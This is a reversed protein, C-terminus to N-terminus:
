TACALSPLHNFSSGNVPCTRCHSSPATDGEPTSERCESEGRVKSGMYLAQIERHRVATLKGYFHTTLYNALFHSTALSPHQDLSQETIELCMSPDPIRQLLQYLPFALDTSSSKTWGQKIQSHVMYESQVLGKEASMKKLVRM